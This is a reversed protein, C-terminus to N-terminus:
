FFPLFVDITLRVIIMSEIKRAGGWEINEFWRAFRRKESEELLKVFEKDSFYFDKNM